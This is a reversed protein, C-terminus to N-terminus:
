SKKQRGNLMAQLVGPLVKRVENQQRKLAREFRKIGDPDIYKLIADRCLQRGAEHHAVLANAEVKHPGYKKLYNQVYPKNHDPHKDSALDEGSGTELGDIWTLDHAEIFDANLGFRDIILRDPSWHEAKELQRFNGRIKDSILEGAPDLDGCYLLVCQRGAAEHPKFRRISQSRSNVDGWGRTNWIPVHYEACIKKFLERLDIKEVMMEIYSPQFDWFSIPQYNQWCETVIKAYIEAFRKPDAISLQEINEAERAEDSACFDIPLVGDKRWDVILREVRDFAGKSIFRDNELMYCWGRAGLKFDLRSQIELMHEAFAAAKADYKAQEAASKRGRKGEPLRITVPETQVSM